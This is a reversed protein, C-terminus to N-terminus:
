PSPGQIIMALSRAGAFPPPPVLLKPWRLLFHQLCKAFVQGLVKVLTELVMSSAQRLKPNLFEWM